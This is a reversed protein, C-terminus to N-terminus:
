INPRHHLLGVLQSCTIDIEYDKIREHCASRVYNSGIKDWEGGYYGFIHLLMMSRTILWNLVIMNKIVCVILQWFSNVIM